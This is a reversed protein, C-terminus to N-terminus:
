DAIATQLLTLIDTVKKPVFYYYASEQLKEFNWDLSVSLQKEDEARTVALYAYSQMESIKKSYNAYIKYTGNEKFTKTPKTTLAITQQM